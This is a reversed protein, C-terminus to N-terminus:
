RSRGADLDAEPRADWLRIVGDYGGSALKNGDPSFALYTAGVLKSHRLSLVEQGTEADWIGVRGDVSSTALRRGDPTYIACIVEHTHGALNLLDKGDRADLLKVQGDLGASVV